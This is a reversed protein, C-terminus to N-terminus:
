GGLFRAEWRKEPEIAPAFSVGERRNKIQMLPAFNVIGGCSRMVPSAFCAKQAVEFPDM